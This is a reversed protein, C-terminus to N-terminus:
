QPMVSLYFRTYKFHVVHHHICIYTYIYIYQFSEWLYIWQCSGWKVIFELARLLKPCKKRKVFGATIKTGSCLSAPQSLRLQFIWVPFYASMGTAVSDREKRIGRRNEYSSLLDQLTIWRRPLGASNSSIRILVGISQLLIKGGFCYALYCWFLHSMKRQCRWLPLVIKLSLRQWDLREWFCPPLWILFLFVRPVLHGSINMRFGATPETCCPSSASLGQEWTSEARNTCLLAPHLWAKVNWLFQPSM